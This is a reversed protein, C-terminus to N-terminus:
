IKKDKLNNILLAWVVWLFLHGFHLSWWFHDFMMMIVLSLLISLNFLNGRSVSEVAIWAILGLFLLSGIIGIEAMILLFTNHVPEFNWYLDDPRKSKQRRIYNGLGTGFFPDESISRKGQTLYKARQDFSKEELRGQGSLRSVFLENYFFFPFIFIFSAILILSLIKLQGFWNKTLLFYLLLFLTASCVALWASRSFSLILGLIGLYFAILCINLELTRPKLKKKVLPYALFLMSIALFAGLINPHDFSGYARLWREGVGFPGFTEIASVGPEGPYHRAMGLWKCAPSDQVFFQFISILGQIMVSFALSLYLKMRDYNAALLLFFIGAGELFILYHYFALIKDQSYFISIFLVLDLGAILFIPAKTKSLRLETGRDLFISVVFFTLLVMVFIDVAYLSISLYEIDSPRLILRTQLPLVLILLYIGYEIIKKLNDM